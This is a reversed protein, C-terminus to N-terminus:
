SNSSRSHYSCCQAARPSQDQDRLLDHLGTQDHQVQEVILLNYEDFFEPNRQLTDGVEADSFSGKVQDNLERLLSCAAQARGTGLSSVQFFFNNRLDEETVIKSDVITFSAIGGLVLNKLAETCLPSAGLVCIKASELRAQGHAGWLRIQRDYRKQTGNSVAMPAFWGQLGGHALENPDFGISELARGQYSSDRLVCRYVNRTVSGSSEHMTQRVRHSQLCTEATGHASLWPEENAGSRQARLM